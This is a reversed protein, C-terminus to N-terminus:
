QSNQDTNAAEGLGIKLTHPIDLVLGMSKTPRDSQDLKKVLSSFVSMEDQPDTRNLGQIIALQKQVQIEARFNGADRARTLTDELRLISVARVDELDYAVQDRAMRYALKLVTNAERRTLGHERELLEKRVSRYFGETNQQGATLANLCEEALHDEWMILYRWDPWQEFATDPNVLPLLGLRGMDPEYVTGQEIGLDAAITELVEIWLRVAPHNGTDPVINLGRGFPPTDMWKYPPPPPTYALGKAVVEPGHALARHVEKLDRPQYYCCQRKPSLETAQALLRRVRMSCSRMKRYDGRSLEPQPVPIRWPDPNELNPMMIEILTDGDDHGRVEALARTLRWAVRIRFPLSDEPTAAEQQFAARIDEIAKKRQETPTLRENNPDYRRLHTPLGMYARNTREMNMESSPVGNVKDWFLNSLKNRNANDIKVIESAM